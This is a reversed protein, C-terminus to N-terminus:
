SNKSLITLPHKSGLSCELVQLLRKNVISMKVLAKVVDFLGLIEYSLYHKVFDGVKKVLKGRGNVTSVVIGDRSIKTSISM